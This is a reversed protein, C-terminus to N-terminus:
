SVDHLQGRMSDIDGNSDFKYRMIHFFFVSFNIESLNKDHVTYIYDIIQRKIQYNRISLRNEFPNV